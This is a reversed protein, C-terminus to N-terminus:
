SWWFPSVLRKSSAQWQAARREIASYPARIDNLYDDSVVYLVHDAAHHRREM